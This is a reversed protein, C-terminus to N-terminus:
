KGIYKFSYTNRNRSSSKQLDKRNNGSLRGEYKLIFNKNFSVSKAFNKLSTILSIYNANKNKKVYSCGFNLLNQAIGLGQYDPLVVIRHVLWMKLKPHPYSGFALLAVPKEKFFAVFELANNRYNHSLYHYKSFYRWYGKTRRIDLKIEPRRHLGRTMKFSMDDTCFVWDPELWDLIDYHCSIAIFKKNRKRVAKQVAYSGLQAVERDIVSTFEDFSIIDKNALIARALDIRMKEGNSLVNYPKIWSPPSSFGVSSLVSIIEAFPISKDFDDVVSKEKYEFNCITDGFLEKAITTKGTGSKGVIVGVNWENPFDFEGQFHEGLNEDKLDFQSYIQAVRFSKKNSENKKIIDFKKIM